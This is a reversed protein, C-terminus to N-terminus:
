YHVMVFGILRSSFYDKDNKLCYNYFRCINISSSFVWFLIQFLSIFVDLHHHNFTNVLEIELCYVIFLCIILNILAFPHFNILILLLLIFYDFEFKWNFFFVDINFLWLYIFLLKFFIKGLFFFHFIIKNFVDPCRSFM